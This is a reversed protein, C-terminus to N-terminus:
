FKSLSFREDYARTMRVVMVTMTVVFLATTPALGFGLGGHAAPHALLDAVAAGFPWAGACAVWFAPLAWQPVAMHVLLMVLFGATFILLSGTSSLTWVQMTLECMAAGLAFALLTALWYYLERQAILVTHRSSLSENTHWSALTAALMLALLAVLHHPELALRESMAQAALAALASVIITTVWFVSPVHVIARVQVVLANIALVCLVVATMTTGLGLGQTLLSTLGRGVSAAMVLACWFQLDIPPMKNAPKSERWGEDEELPM